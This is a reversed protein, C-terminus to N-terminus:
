RSQYGHIPSEKLPNTNPTGDANGNFISGRPASIFAARDAGTKISGLRVDGLVQVLYINQLASTASLLANTPFSAGTVVGFPNEATGISGTTSQLTISHGSVDAEPYFPHNSLTAPAASRLISGAARLDIDGLISAIYDVTLNGTNQSLYIGSYAYASVTGATEIDVYNLGGKASPLGIRGGEARLIINRAKIKTFDNDLADSIGGEATLSVDGGSSYVSEINLNGASFSSNVGRIFISDRARATM